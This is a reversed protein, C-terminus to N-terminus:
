NVNPYEQFGPQMNTELAATGGLFTRTRNLRQSEISSIIIYSHLNLMKLFWGHGVVVTMNKQIDRNIELTRIGVTESCCSETTMTLSVNHESDWGGWGRGSQWWVVGM